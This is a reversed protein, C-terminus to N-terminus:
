DRAWATMTAVEDFFIVVGSNRGRCGNLYAVCKARRGDRSVKCKGCLASLVDGVKRGRLSDMKARLIEDRGPRPANIQENPHDRNYQAISERITPSDATACASSLLCVALAIILRNM